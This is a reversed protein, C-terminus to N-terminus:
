AAGPVHADPGDVDARGRRKKAPKPESPVDIVVSSSLAAPARHDARRSHFGLCAPVKEDLGHRTSCALCPAQELPLAVGDVFGQHRVAGHGCECTAALTTGPPVEAPPWKEPADRFLKPQAAGALERVRVAVFEVVELKVSLARGLRACALATAAEGSEAQVPLLASAEVRQVPVRFVVEVEFMPLEASETATGKVVREGASRKPLAGSAGFDKFLSAVCSSARVAADCETTADVADVTASVTAGAASVGGVIRCNWM